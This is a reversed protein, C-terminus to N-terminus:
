YRITKQDWSDVPLNHCILKDHAYDPLAIHYYSYERDLWENEQRVDKMWLPIHWAGDGFILHHPSILIDKDPRNNEFYHAPIRVPITSEEGRVISHFVSQIPVIRLDPTLVLDRVNLDQVRRYGKPTLIEMDRCFCPVDTPTPTGFAAAINYATYVSSNFPSVTFPTLLYPQVGGTAFTTTGSFTPTTTWTYGYNTNTATNNSGPNTTKVLYIGSNSFNTYYNTITFSSGGNTQRVFSLGNTTTSAYTSSGNLFVSYANTVNLTGQVTSFIGINIDASSFVQNTCVIYFNTITCTAGGAISNIIYNSVIGSTISSGSIICYVSDFSNTGQLQNLIYSTSSTQFTNPNSSYFVTDTMTLNSVTSGFILGSAFASPSSYLNFICKQITVNAKTATGFIIGNPATMSIQGTPQYFTVNTITSNNGTTAALQIFGISATISSDLTITHNQGDLYNNSGLKLYNTTSANIYTSTLTIDSTLVADISTSQSATAATIWSAQDSISYLTAM